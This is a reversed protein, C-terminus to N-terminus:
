KVLVGIREKLNPPWYVSVISLLNGGIQKFVVCLPQPYGPQSIRARRIQTDGFFAIIIFSKELPM